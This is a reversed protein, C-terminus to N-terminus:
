QEFAIADVFVDVSTVPQGTQSTLAEAVAKQVDHAVEHLPQGYRLTVHLAVAMAGKEDVTVALAKGTKHVLGGLGTTEVKAVGDVGQAALTVITDLVGPAVGIGQLRLEDTM